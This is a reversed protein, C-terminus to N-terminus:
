NQITVRTRTSEVMKNISNSKVRGVMWIEYTGNPVLNTRWGTTMQDQVVEASRVTEKGSADRTHFELSSMPVSSSKANVTFVVRDSLPQNLDTGEGAFSLTLTPDQNVVYFFQRSSTGLTEGHANTSIVQVEYRGEPFKSSDFNTVCQGALAADANSCSSSWVSKNNADFVSFSLGDSNAFTSAAKFETTGSVYSYDRPSLTSVAGSMAPIEFGWTSRGIGSSDSYAVRGFGQEGWEQGWSNRIIYSQTVDDYGVISVAHGGLYDGSTHKYVGGAYTVFDAYVTLTTVVPGRQLARKVSDVDMVTLSPTKYNAIKVTRRSSDACRAECAVDKGTAGSVYPMCAEDPVGRQMLYNAASQPYWGYECAGGGCSFLNQPSLR